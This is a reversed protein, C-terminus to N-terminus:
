RVAGPQVPLTKSRVLAAIAEITGFHEAVLEEDLIEVDFESEVFAVLVSIGLSDIVNRELLPFDNTLRGQSENWLLEDVIFKRIKGEIM